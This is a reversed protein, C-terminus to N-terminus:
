PKMRRDSFLNMLIEKELDELYDALHWAVKRDGAVMQIGMGLDPEVQFQISSTGPLWADLRTQIDHMQGDELPYGSQVLVARNMETRAFEDKEAAVKALFVHVVQQNLGQHALDRLVKESIRMIQEAMRKKLTDLFAQRDRTMHAMWTRRLTEIEERATGHMKERWQDVEARAEEM